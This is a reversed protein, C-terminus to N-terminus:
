DDNIICVLGRGVFLPAAKKRPFPPYSFRTIHFYRVKSARPKRVSLLTHSRSTHVIYRYIIFHLYDMTRQAVLALLTRYM